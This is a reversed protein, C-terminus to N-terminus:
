ETAVCREYTAYEWYKRGSNSPGVWGKGLLEKAIYHNIFGHGVLLVSRHESALEILRDAAAKARMRATHYSESNKAFGMFWLSRLIIVWIKLPLRISVKDFYPLNMERFLRESIDVRKVGLAAASDLSRTLDSCVVFLHQSVQAVCDEPPEDTITASDYENELLEFEYGRVSRQWEFDPCGHRLLTIHM